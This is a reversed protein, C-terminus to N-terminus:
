HEHPNSERSVAAAPVVFMGNVPASFPQDARHALPRM